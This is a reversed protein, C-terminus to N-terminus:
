LRNPYRLEEWEVYSGKLSASPLKVGYHYIHTLNDWHNQKRWAIACLCRLLHLRGIACNWEGTELTVLWQTTNRDTAPFWPATNLLPSPTSCSYKTIWVGRATNPTSRATASEPDPPHPYCCAAPATSPIIVTTPICILPWWGSQWPGRCPLCFFLEYLCIGGTPTDLLWVFNVERFSWCFLLVKPVSLLSTWLGGVCETKSRKFYGFHLSTQLIKGRGAACGDYTM